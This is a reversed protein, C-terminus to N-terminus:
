TRNIDFDEAGYTAAVDEHQAAPAPPMAMDLITGFLHDFGERHGLAIAAATPSVDQRSVPPRSNALVALMDKFMQKSMLERIFEVHPTSAHWHALTMSSYTLVPIPQVPPTPAKPTGQVAPQKKWWAAM